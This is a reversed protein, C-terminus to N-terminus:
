RTQLVQVETVELERTGSLSFTIQGTQGAGSWDVQWHATATVDFTRDPEDISPRAYTHGCTPSPGTGRAPAWPTGATSCSVVTGDGMDWSVRTVRATATVTTSGATASRTIPGFAHPGDDALWLWTPVGVVMPAEPNLPTMGLTPSVLRMREVAEEALGVPDVADPEQEPPVWFTYTGGGFGGGVTGGEGSGPPRCTWVSGDTHGEWRPDGPPPDPTIRKVWCQKSSSWSGDPSSCSIPVGNYTCTPVSDGERSSGPGGGEPDHEDIPHLIVDAGEGMGAESGPDVSIFDGAQATATVLLVAALVCWSGLALRALV